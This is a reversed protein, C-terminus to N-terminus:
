HMLWPPPQNMSLAIGGPKAQPGYAPPGNPTPTTGASSQSQTTPTGIELVGVLGQGFHNGDGAQGKIRCHYYITTGTVVDDPVIWVWEEGDPM